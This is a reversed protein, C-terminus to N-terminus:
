ASHIHLEDKLCKGLLSHTAPRCMIVGPLVYDDPHLNLIDELYCGLRLCLELKRHLELNNNMHEKWVHHLPKGTLSHLPMGCM